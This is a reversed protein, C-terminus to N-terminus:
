APCGRCPQLVGQEVQWEKVVSSTLCEKVDNVM